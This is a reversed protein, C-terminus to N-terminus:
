VGDVLEFLDVDSETCPEEFEDWDNHRVHMVAATRPGIWYAVPVSEGPAVDSGPPEPLGHALVWRSWDVALSADFTPPRVLAVTAPHGSRTSRM